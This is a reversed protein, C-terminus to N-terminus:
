DDILKSYDIKGTKKDRASEAPKEPKAPQGPQVPVPGDTKVGQDPQEPAAISQPRRLNEPIGYDKFEEKSLHDFNGRYLGTGINFVGRTLSHSTPVFMPDFSGKPAQKFGPVFNVISGGGKALYDGGTDLLVNKGFEGVSKVNPDFYNVVANKGLSGGLFLKGSAGSGFLAGSAVFQAEGSVFGSVGDSVTKYKGSAYNDRVKGTNHALGAAGWVTAGRMASAAMPSSLGQVWPLTLKTAGERGAIAAFRAGNGAAAAPALGVMFAGAISGTFASPAVNGAAKWFNTEKGSAVECGAGAATGLIGGGVIGAIIAVGAPAGLGGTGLTIAVAAAFGVGMAVIHGHDKIWDWVAGPCSKVDMWRKEWWGAKNYEAVETAPKRISDCADRFKQGGHSPDINDIRNLRMLAMEANGKMMDMQALQLLTETEYHMMDVFPKLHAIKEKEIQTREGEPKANLKNYEAEVKGSDPGLAEKMARAEGLGRIAADYAVNLHDRAAKDNGAKGAEEMATAAAGYETMAKDFKGGHEQIVSGKFGAQAIRELQDFLPQGQDDVLQKAAEPYKKAVALHELIGKFDPKEQQSMTYALWTEAMGRAQSLDKWAAIEMQAKVSTDGSAELTAIKKNIEDPEFQKDQSLQVAYQAQILAEGPTLATSSKGLFILPNKEPAVVLAQRQGAADITSQKVEQQETAAQLEPPSIGDLITKSSFAQKDAGVSVGNKHTNLFQAYALAGVIPARHTWFADGANVTALEKAQGVTLMERLKDRTSDTTAPALIANRVDDGSMTEPKANLKALAAVVEPDKSLQQMRQEAREAQLVGVFLKGDAGVADKSMLPISRQFRQDIKEILAERKSKDSITELSELEARVQRMDDRWDIGNKGTVAGRENTRDSAISVLDWKVETDGLISRTATERVDPIVAVDNSQNPKPAPQDQDEFGM